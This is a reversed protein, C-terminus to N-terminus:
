PKKPTASREGQTLRATTALLKKKTDNAHTNINLDPYLSLHHRRFAHLCSDLGPERALMELYDAVSLVELRDNHRASEGAPAAHLAVLEDVRREAVAHPLFDVGERHLSQRRVFPFFSAGLWLSAM